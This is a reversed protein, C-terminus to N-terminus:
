LGLAIVEEVSRVFSAVGGANSVNQIFLKQEPTEVSGRMKKVELAYFKGDPHRVCLIDSIGVIPNKRGRISKSNVKFCFHGRSRIYALIETQVDKELTFDVEKM